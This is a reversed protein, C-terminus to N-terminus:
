IQESMQCGIVLNHRTEKGEPCQLRVSERVGEGALM